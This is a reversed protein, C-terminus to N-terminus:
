ELAARSKEFLTELQSALLKSGISRKAGGGMGTVQDTSTRNAYVVLTGKADPLLAAVAQESNYGTSVYIQRHVAIWAEGDPVLLVHTLAITPVGHADLQTWRFSEVSGAPKAKPYDFLLQYAAPAHSQLAKSALSATRIEDAASRTKGDARAYPAIGALGQAQYASLRASLGARVQAEM